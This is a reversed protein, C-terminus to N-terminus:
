RGEWRLSDRGTRDALIEAGITRPRGAPLAPGSEDTVVGLGDYGTIEENGHCRREVNEVNKDRHLDTRAPDDMAINGLMRCGFPSQLLEALEQREIM